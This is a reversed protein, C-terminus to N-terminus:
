KALRESCCSGMQHHHILRWDKLKTWFLNMCSSSCPHLSRCSTINLTVSSLNHFRLNHTALIPKPPMNSCFFAIPACLYLATELFLPKYMIFDPLYSTFFLKIHAPAYFQKSFLNPVSSLRQNMRASHSPEWCFPCALHICGTLYSAMHRAAPDCRYILLFLLQLVRMIFM